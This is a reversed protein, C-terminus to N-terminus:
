GAGGLIRRLRVDMRRDGWRGAECVFVGVGEGVGVARDYKQLVPGASGLGLGLNALEERDHGRSGCSPRPM